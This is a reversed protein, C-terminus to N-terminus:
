RRLAKEKKSLLLDPWAVGIKVTSSIMSGSPISTSCSSNFYQSRQPPRHSRTRPFCSGYQEDQAAAMDSTAILRLDFRGGRRGTRSILLWYEGM